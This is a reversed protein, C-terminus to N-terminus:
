KTKEAAREAARNEREAKNPIRVIDKALVNVFERTLTPPGEVWGLSGLFKDMEITTDYFRDLSRSIGFFSHGEGPYIIADMRMGAKECLARFSKLVPPPLVGDETGVVIIGPPDDSSVSAYPSITAYIEALNSSVMGKAADAEARSNGSILAPNYLLMAQPRCSIKLDDRPDDTGDVMGVFAALHGGASGGGSAIRNPDIGLEAAHSRVWRMASKADRCADLPAEKRNNAVLRYEVQICVVGRTILYASQSNFQTPGGKGVEWGGGHFFVIAPHQDSAKLGPPSLVFLRLDRGDVNKYVHMAGVPKLKASAKVDEADIVRASKQALVPSLLAFSFLLVPIFLKMIFLPM